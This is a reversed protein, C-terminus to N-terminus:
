QGPGPDQRQRDASCSAPSSLPASAVIRPRSLRRGCSWGVDDRGRGAETAPRVQHLAHRDAPHDRSLGTVPLHPQDHHQLRVRQRLLGAGHGGRRDRPIQHEERESVRNVATWLMPVATTYIGLFLMIAFLAGLGPVVASAVYLSPVQLAYVSGIHALLAFSLLMVGSIFGISGWLGGLRTDTKSHATRGMTSIFPLVGTLTFTGYMLGSVAWNDFARPLDSLGELTADATAIGGPNKAITLIAIAVVFVLIVPGINGIIRVLTKLGLLVTLLVIVAMILRGGWSPLGFQENLTSGAGAFMISVVMFLMLPVFWEFFLGIYKGCYHRYIDNPSALQLRRGDELLVTCFWAFVTMAILGAGVSGWVGLHAFFQLAEQGTAFGAGIVWAM